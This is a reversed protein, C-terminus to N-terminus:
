KNIEFQSGMIEQFRPTFYQILGGSDTFTMEGFYINGSSIYFDVRVEQFGRSLISAYELLLDMNQPRPISFPSRYKEIIYEPHPKWTELDYFEHDRDHSKYNRNGCVYCIFPRGNFCWIKYDVISTSISADDTFLLEEAIIRPKIRLYHPESFFVADKNKLAKNIKTKIIDFNEGKKDMVIITNGSSNNTKIVFANPLINFDIDNVHNWVGYLNVLLNDLGCRKVYERVMYKDALESWISTDTNYELWLIKENLTKPYEWNINKEFRLKYRINLM